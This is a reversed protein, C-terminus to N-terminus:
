RWMVRNMSDFLELDVRNTSGDAALEVTVQVDEHGVGRRDTWVWRGEAFRAPQGDHFPQCHYLTAAKDNALQMALTRAQEATLGAGPQSSACGALLLSLIIVCPTRM